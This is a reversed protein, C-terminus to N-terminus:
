FFRDFEQIQHGIGLRGDLFSVKVNTGSFRLFDALIFYEMSFGIKSLKKFKDAIKTLSQRIFCLKM